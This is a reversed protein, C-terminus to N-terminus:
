LKVMKILLVGSIINNVESKIFVEDVFFTDGFGRHKKRLRKAYKSGFKLCWCRVSEYSVSIGCRALLDEMGRDSLNKLHLSRCLTHVWEGVKTLVPGATAWIHARRTKSRPKTGRAEVPHM